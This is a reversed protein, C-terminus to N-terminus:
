CSRYKSYRRLRRQEGTERGTEKVVFQLIKPLLLNISCWKFIRLLEAAAAATRELKEELKRKLVSSFKRSSFTSQVGYSSSHSSSFQQLQKELKEENGVFQLIKPIALQNLLM